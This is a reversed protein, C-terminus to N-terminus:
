RTHGPYTCGVTLSAPDLVLDRGDVPCEHATEYRGVYPELDSIDTPRGADHDVQYFNIAGEFMRQNDLCVVRQASRVATVYSAVAITVLIGVIMVVTMLEVLTFGCEPSPRTRSRM